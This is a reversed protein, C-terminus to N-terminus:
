FVECLACYGAPTTAEEGCGGLCPHEPVKPIALEEVTWGEPRLVGTSADQSFSAVIDGVAGGTLAKTWHIGGDSRWAVKVSSCDTAMNVEDLAPHMAVLMAARRAPLQFLLRRFFMQQGKPIVQGETKGEVFLFCSNVEIAADIDSPSIGRPLVKSVVSWVYEKARGAYPSNRIDGPDTM